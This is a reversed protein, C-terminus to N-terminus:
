EGLLNQVFLEDVGVDNELFIKVHEKDGPRSIESYGEKNRSVFLLNEREAYKVIEPNHTTVIIQKNKSADKCMEVVKSILHPHINREPEEIIAISSNHEFYLIIIIAILNITGDSFSSSPFDKDQYYTERFKLLLTNDIYKDVKLDNILPLSDQLLNFFLRSEHEDSLINEIVLALNRADSELDIKGATPVGEKPRKPNIDYITLNEINEYPAEIFHMTALHLLNTQKLKQKVIDDTKNDTKILFKDFQSIYSKMIKESEATFNETMEHKLHIKGNSDEFLTFSGSPSQRNESKSALLKYHCEIHQKL